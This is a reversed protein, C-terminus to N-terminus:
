FFFLEDAPRKPFAKLEKWTLSQSFKIRERDPTNADRASRTLEAPASKRNQAKRLSPRLIRQIADYLPMVGSTHKLADLDPVADEDEDDDDDFDFFSRPFRSSDTASEAWYDAITVPRENAASAIPGVNQVAPTPVAKPNTDYLESNPREDIQDGSLISPKGHADSCEVAGPTLPSVPSSPSPMSVRPRTNLPIVLKPLQQPAARTQPSAPPSLEQWRPAVQNISDEHSAVDEFWRFSTVPASFRKSRRAANMRRPLNSFRNRQLGNPSPSPWSVAGGAPSSSFIRSSRASAYQSNDSISEIHSGDISLRRSQDLYLSPAPLSEDSENFDLASAYSDLQSGHLTRRSPLRALLHPFDEGEPSLERHEEEEDDAKGEEQELIPSFNHDCSKTLSLSSHTTDWELIHSLNLKLRTFEPQVPQVPQVPLASHQIPHERQRLTASEPFVCSWPRRSQLVTPTMISAALSIM